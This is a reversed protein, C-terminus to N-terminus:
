PAEARAVPKALACELVIGDALQPAFRVLVDNIFRLPPRVFARHELGLDYFAFRGPELGARRVLGTLTSYSLYAIHDPHVPERIGGRGRLAYTVFRMGCYANVTTIILTSDERLFRKVGMLFLGPNSLHEIVEGAVVIDFTRDLPARELHELDACVLNDCGQAALATLGEVDRDIGWLERAVARLAFHIFRDDGSSQELYPSNTCGLHLISRGRCVDRLYAARQILPLSRSKM